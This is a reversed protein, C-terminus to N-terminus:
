LRRWIRQCRIKTTTSSGQLSNKMTYYPHQPRPKIQPFQEPWALLMQRVAKAKSIAEVLSVPNDWVKADLAMSDCSVEDFLMKNEKRRQQAGLEKEKYTLQRDIERLKMKVKRLASQFVHPLPLPANPTAVRCIVDKRHGELFRLYQLAEIAKEMDAPMKVVDLIRVTSAGGIVASVFPDWPSSTSNDGWQIDEKDVTSAQVSRRRWKTATGIPSMAATGKSGISSEMGLKSLHRVSAHSAATTGLKSSRRPTSAYPTNGNGTLSALERTGRLTAVKKKSVKESPTCIPSTVMSLSGQQQKMEVATTTETETETEATQKVSKLTDLHLSPIITPPHTSPPLQKSEKEIQPKVVGRFEELRQEKKRIVKSQPLLGGEYESSKNAVDMDKIIGKYIVEVSREEHLQQSESTSLVAADDSSIATDTDGIIVDTATTSPSNYLMSSSNAQKMHIGMENAETKVSSLPMSYDMKIFKQQPQQQKVEEKKRKCPIHVDKEWQNCVISKLGEDGGGGMENYTAAKTKVPSVSDFTDSRTPHTPEKLASDDLLKLKGNDAEHFSSLVTTTTTTTTDHCRPSDNSMGLKGVGVPRRLSMGWSLRKPGSDNGPTILACSGGGVQDHKTSGQSGPPITDNNNVVEEKEIPTTKKKEETKIDEKSATALALLSSETNRMRNLSMGWGLRAPQQQCVPKTVGDSELSKSVNELELPKPSSNTSPGTSELNMPALPPKNSHVDSSSLSLMCSDQPAGCASPPGQQSSYLASSSTGILHLLGRRLPPQTVSLPSSSHTINSTPTSSMISVATPPVVPSYQHPAVPAAAESQVANITSSGTEKQFPGVSGQEEDFSFQSPTQLSPPLVLTEDVTPPPFPPSPLAGSREREKHAAISPYSQRTLSHSSMLAPPTCEGEEMEQLTYVREQHWQDTEELSTAVARGSLQSSEFKEIKEEEGGISREPKMNVAPMDGHSKGRGKTSDPFDTGSLDRKSPFSRVNSQWPQCLPLQQHQHVARSKNNENQIVGRDSHQPKQESWFAGTTKPVSAGQEREEHLYVSNSGSSSEKPNLPDYRLRDVSSSGTGRTNRFEGNSPYGYYKDSEYTMGNGGSGKSFGGGREVGFDPRAASNSSPGYYDQKNRGRGPTHHNFRKPHHNMTNPLQRRDGRSSHPSKCSTKGMGPRNAGWSSSGGSSGGVWESMPSKYPSECPSQLSVFDREKWGRRQGGGGSKDPLNSSPCFSAAPKNDTERLMHRSGEGGPQSSSGGLSPLDSSVRHSPSPYGSSQSQSGSPSSHYPTNYRSPLQRRSTLGRERDWKRSDRYSDREYNREYSRDQSPSSSLASPPPKSSLEETSPWAKSDHFRYQKVSGAGAGGRVDDGRELACLSSGLSPPPVGTDSNIPQSRRFGGSGGFTDDVPHHHSSSSKPPPTTPNQDSFGGRGIALCKPLPHRELRSIEDNCLNQCDSPPSKGAPPNAGRDKERSWVRGSTDESGGVYQVVHPPTDFGRRKQWREGGSSNRGNCKSYLGGRGADAVHNPQIMFSHDDKIHSQLDGDGDGGGGQRSNTDMPSPNMMSSPPPLVDDKWQHQHGGGGERLKHCDIGRNSSWHPQQELVDPKDPSFAEGGKWRKELYSRDSM